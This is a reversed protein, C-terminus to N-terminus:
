IQAELLACVALSEYLKQNICYRLRQRWLCLLLPVMFSFLLHTYLCLLGRRKTRDPWEMTWGRLNLIVM